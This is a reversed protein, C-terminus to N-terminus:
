VTCSKLIEAFGVATVTLAPLGLVEVIVIVAILPNLLTTLRAVLLVAHVSVGVLTEPEPPEVSEHVKVEALVICTVTVPM